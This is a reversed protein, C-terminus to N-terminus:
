KEVAFDYVKYREVNPRIVERLVEQHIPHGAFDRLAQQDEFLLVVGIDYTSDVVPRDSPISPGVYADVVGPIERIRHTGEIVKRRAEADGPQKLWAVVVHAVGAHPAARPRPEVGGSKCGAVTLGLLVALGYAARKTM